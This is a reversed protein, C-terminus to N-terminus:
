RQKQWAITLYKNCFGDVITSALRRYAASPHALYYSILNPRMDDLRAENGTAIKLPSFPQTQSLTDIETLALAQGLQRFSERTFDHLHYPNVDVSPTVPVSAVLIGGPQLLKTFNALLAKPDSVHEVTELSVITNFGEDDKLARGDGSCFAINDAGYHKAAYSSAKPDIDVGMVHCPRNGADALIATGYGVGCACDLVRGGDVFRKAFEYRALHLDLTEQGTADNDALTGPVLREMSVSSPLEQAFETM